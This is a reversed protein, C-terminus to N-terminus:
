MHLWPFVCSHALVAPNVTIYVFSVHGMYVPPCGVHKLSSVRTVEIVNAAQNLQPYRFQSMDYTDQLM